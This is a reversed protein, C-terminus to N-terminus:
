DWYVPLQVLTILVLPLLLANAHVLRRFPHSPVQYRVIDNCFAMAEYIRRQPGQNGFFSEGHVEAVRDGAHSPTEPEALVDVFGLLAEYRAHTRRTHACTRNRVCVDSLQRAHRGRRRGPRGRRRGQRGQRWEADGGLTGGAGGKRLAATRAAQLALRAATAVV